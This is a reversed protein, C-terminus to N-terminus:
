GKVKRRKEGKRGQVADNTYLLAGKNRYVHREEPAKRQRKGSQWSGVGSEIPAAKIRKRREAEIL